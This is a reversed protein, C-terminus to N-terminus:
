LLVVVRNDLIDISAVLGVKNHYKPLGGRYEIYNGIKIEERSM